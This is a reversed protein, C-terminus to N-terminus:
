LYSPRYVRARGAPSELRVSLLVPYAAERTSPTHMGSPPRVRSLRTRCRVKVEEGVVDADVGDAGQGRPHDVGRDALRGAGDPGGALALGEGLLRVTTVDELVRAAMDVEDQTLLGGAFRFRAARRPITRLREMKMVCCLQVHVPIVIFGLIM